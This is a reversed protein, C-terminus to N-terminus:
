GAHGLHDNGPVKELGKIAFVEGIKDAFAEYDVMTRDATAAFAHALQQAEL